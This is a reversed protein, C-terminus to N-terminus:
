FNKLIYEVADNLDKALYDCNTGKNYDRDVLITFCGAKKGAEMDKFTDGIFVSDKISLDWKKALSTLMGPKPKRCECQHIDDHMCARIEDVNLEEEIMKHFKELIELPFIKRVIDPQNTAVFVLFDADKFCQIAEHIGEIWQWEELNRPSTAKGERMIPQNIIGDRDLFIAKNISSKESKM